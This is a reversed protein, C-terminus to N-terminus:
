RLFHRMTCWVGCIAPRNHSLKAFLETTDADGLNDDDDNNKVTYEIDDFLSVTDKHKETHAEVEEETLNGCPCKHM